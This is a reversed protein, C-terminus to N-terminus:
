ALGEPVSGIMSSGDPVSGIMILGDPVSGIISSGDPESLYQGLTFCKKSLSCVEM